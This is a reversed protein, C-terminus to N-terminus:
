GFNSDRGRCRALSKAHLLCGSEEFDVEHATPNPLAGAELADVELAAETLLVLSDPVSLSM